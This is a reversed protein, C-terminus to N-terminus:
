AALATQHNRAPFVIHNTTVKRNKQEEEKDRRDMLVVNRVYGDLGEDYRSRVVAPYQNAAYKAHEEAQQVSEIKGISKIFNKFLVLGGDRARGKLERIRSKLSKSRVSIYKAIENGTITNGKLITTLFTRHGKAFEYAQKVLMVRNMNMLYDVAFGSPRKQQEKRILAKERLRQYKEKLKRRFRMIKEQQKRLTKRMKIFLKEEKRSLKKGELMMEVAKAKQMLKMLAYLSDKPTSKRTQENTKASFPSYEQRITRLETRIASVAQVTQEIHTQRYDSKEKRLTERTVRLRENTSEPKAGIQDGRRFLHPKENLRTINESKKIRKESSDNKWEVRSRNLDRQSVPGEHVISPLPNYPKVDPKRIRPIESSQHKRPTSSFIEVNKSFSKLFVNQEPSFRPGAKSHFYTQKMREASFPHVSSVRIPTVNYDRIFSTRSPITKFRLSQSNREFTM